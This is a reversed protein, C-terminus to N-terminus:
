GWLRGWARELAAEAELSDRDRFLTAVARTEGGRRYTVRADRADLDGDVDIECEAPDAHGVYAIVADHHASWFFPVDRYAVRAGLLNKAATQGQRQAVVWHEIRLRAGAPAGPRPDPFRAADGAAYVGPASTMLHEDVLVGNDVALGAAQALAVDPRVGVGLVVLEAPLTEGSSLTVQAEDIRAATQGLHFVTGKSEHVRRVFDGVEAGLVRELPRAEPAVVHVEVGRARLSAAAELGIFSAGIVVARSGERALAIIARSDALTRLTRVHPLDAGPLPLRVPTAGTALLLADWALTRGDALAVTRAGVDLGAVRAGSLLQIDKEVFFEPPRLPIWEEPATGALYDKSLNPRDVPPEDAAGILTLEGGYGLRRLMEAAAHGAAGAGVIVVRAPGGPPRARAEEALKAGVKVRDGERVVAYCAIPNLAPAGLAEGSRLSFCAHHWPCRLTDGAILGEALPGGYHTCTAGLAFLEDGRRALVVAEGGAHGLLLGGDSIESAAVGERLDPGVLEGQAGGM